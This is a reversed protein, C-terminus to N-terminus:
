RSRGACTAGRRTGCGRAPLSSGAAPRRSPQPSASRVPRAARSRPRARGRGDARAPWPARGPTRPRAPGRRCRSARRGTAAAHASAARRRRSEAAPDPQRRLPSEGARPSGTAVDAGIERGRPQLGEVAVLEVVRDVLGGALRPQRERDVADLRDIGRERELQLLEPGRERDVRERVRQRHDGVDDRHELRGDRHAQRVDAEREHLRAGAPDRPERVPEVLLVDLAPALDRQQLLPRTVVHPAEEVACLRDLLRLSRVSM